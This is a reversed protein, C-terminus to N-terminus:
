GLMRKIGATEGIKRGTAWGFFLVALDIVVRGAEGNRTVYLIVAFAVLLLIVLGVGFGAPVDWRLQIDGQAKTAGKSVPRTFLLDKGILRNILNM